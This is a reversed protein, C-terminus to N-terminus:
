AGGLLSRAREVFADLKIDCAIKWRRTLPPSSKWLRERSEPSSSPSLVGLYDIRDLETASLLRDEAAKKIADLRRKSDPQSHSPPLRESVYSAIDAIWGLRSLTGRSEGKSILEAPEFRNKLLLAPLAELIRLNVKGATVGALLEEFPRVEGLLLTEAAHVDRLGWFRLQAVVARIDDGRREAGAAFYLLPWGLHQAIVCVDAFSPVSRDSEFRVLSSVSVGTRSSLAALSLGATQRATRLWKGIPQWKRIRRAM